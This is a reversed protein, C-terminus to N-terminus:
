RCVTYYYPYRRYAYHLSECLYRGEVLETTQICQQYVDIATVILNILM